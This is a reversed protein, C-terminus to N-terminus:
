FSKWIVYFKHTCYKLNKQLTIHHFHIKSNTNLQHTCYISVTFYEYIDPLLDFAYKKRFLWYFGNPFRSSESDWIKVLNLFFCDKVNLDMTFIFHNVVLKHSSILVIVTHIEAYVFVFIKSYKVHNMKCWMRTTPPNSCLFCCM